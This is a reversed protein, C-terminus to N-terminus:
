VLGRHAPGVRHGLRDRGGDPHRRPDSCTPRQGRHPSRGRISRRPRRALYAPDGGDPRHALSSRVLHAPMGAMTSGFATALPAPSICRLSPSGLCTTWPGLSGPTRGRRRRHSRRRRVRHTPSVRASRRTCNGPRCTPSIGDEPRTLLHSSGGCRVLSVRLADPWDCCRPEARPTTTPRWPSRSAECASWRRTARRTARATSASRPSAPQSWTTPWRRARWSWSRATMPRCLGLVTSRWATSRPGSHTGSSASASSAMAASSRCTRRTAPRWGSTRRDPWTRHIPMGPQGSRRGSGDTHSPNRNRSRRGDSRPLEVVPSARKGPRSPTLRRSGASAM